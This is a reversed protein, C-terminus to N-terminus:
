VDKDAGNQNECFLSIKITDCNKGEQLLKNKYSFILPTIGFYLRYKM